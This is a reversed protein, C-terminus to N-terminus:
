KASFESFKHGCDPCTILNLEDMRAVSSEDELEVNIDDIMNDIENNSFGTFTLDLGGSELIDQMEKTLLGYNWSAYESSKNDMIRYAKIKEDNLDDAILCPIKKMGLEIAAYYRTHGVVIENNKDLVLPQQWGFKSLSNKVVTIADKNVRPNDKYPKIEDIELEIINV